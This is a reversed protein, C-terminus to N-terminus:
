HAWPKMGISSGSGYGNCPPVTVDTPSFSTAVIRGGDSLVFAVSVAPTPAPGCYNSANVLTKVVDGPAVTIRAKSTPTTGDILVSGTGDVLQPRDM